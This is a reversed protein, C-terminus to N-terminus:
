NPLKIAKSERIIGVDEVIKSRTKTTARFDKLKGICDILCVCVCLVCACFVPEFGKECPIPFQTGSLHGAAFYSNGSNNDCYIARKVRNMYRRCIVNLPPIKVNM